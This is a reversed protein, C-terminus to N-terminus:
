RLPGPPDPGAEQQNAAGHRWRRQLRPGFGLPPPLAHLHDAAIDRLLPLAPEAGLRSRISSVTPTVGALDDALLGILISLVAHVANGRLRTWRVAGPLQIDPRALDAAAEMSATEDVMAAVQEVEELSGRLRSSLCNPLLSFTRRSKPCYWRAILCGPPEVRSYATHRAFGCGGEPHDPCRELTASRWGEQRVYEESTLGTTFRLQVLRLGARRDGHRAVKKGLHPGWTGEGLM